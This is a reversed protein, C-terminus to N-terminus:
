VHRVEVVVRRVHDLRDVRDVRDVPGVVLVANRRRGGGGSGIGLRLGWLLRLLGPPEVPMLRACRGFLLLEDELEIPKEQAETTQRIEDFLYPAEALSKLSAALEM